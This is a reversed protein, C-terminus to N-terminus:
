APEAELAVTQSMLPSMSSTPRLRAIACCRAVLNGEDFAIGLCQCERIATEVGVGDREADAVHRPDIGRQAFGIAHQPGSASEQAQFEGGDVEGTEIPQIIHEREPHNRREAAGHRTIGLGVLIEDLDIRLNGLGTAKASIIPAAPKERTFNARRRCRPM